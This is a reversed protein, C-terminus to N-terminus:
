GAVERHVVVLQIADGGRYDDSELRYAIRARYPPPTGTWGGFHIASLRRGDVGLELKLHRTGVPRWSLVDFIGDFLPEPFGQGWPGGDRLAIATGITFEEGRLEGDSDLIDSLVAPDLMVAAAKAFAAEFADLHDRRLTMGAAMAHGGFREILGPHLADVVALADRIHFGPISRASGRMMDSGPEAPAFAVVPRHLREKLKSAVLGIVGPHWDDHHLCHTARSTELADPLSALALDADDVMQEQVARRETNIADLAQALERATHPDDTLLCEIGLAMDELRGAANIRPAVAFGIDATSLTAADRRSVDILGRLGACGQGARLRRLGASVLARNNADLPVLDAVTGVAVLDLLTTLDADGCAKGSARLRQRLALLVYFIVGVGALMKSAFPDGRRNPNVIADAIPLADGPLHHDTVLVQWGQAKAAAIGAHCAIGHDVTLLLDPKLAALEAVLATSLGYGHVMRNPVAHSVRTAGLMRLGRVAVACATAGDCDFDGVVLIHRENAIGDALMATAVDIDLLGDPPLLNALRPRASAEDRAGRASYIRRLLSPIHAPWADGIDGGRRHIERTATM